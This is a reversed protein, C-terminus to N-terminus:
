CMCTNGDFTYATLTFEEGYLIDNSISLNQFGKAISAINDGTVNNKTSLEYPCLIFGQGYSYLYNIM